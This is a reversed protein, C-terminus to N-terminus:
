EAVIKWNSADSYLVLSAYPANMTYTAFGDITESGDPTVIVSGSVLGDAKVIFLKGAFSLATPLNAIYDGNSTDAEIYGPIDTIDGASTPVDQSMGPQFIIDGYGVAPYSQRISGSVQLLDLQWYYAGSHLGLSDSSSVIVEVEASTLDTAYVQTPNDSSNLSISASPENITRRCNWYLSFGELSGSPLPTADVSITHTTRLGIKNFLRLNACISM